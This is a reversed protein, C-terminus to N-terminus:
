WMYRCVPIFGGDLYKRKRRLHLEFPIQANRNKIFIHIIYKAESVLVMKRVLILKVLESILSVTLMAVCIVRATDRCQVHIVRGLALRSRDRNLVVYEDQGHCQARNSM